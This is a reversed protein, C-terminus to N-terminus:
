PTLESGPAAEWALLTFATYVKGNVSDNRLEFTKTTGAPIEATILAEDAPRIQKGEATAHYSMRYRINRVSLDGTNRLTVRLGHAIQECAVIDIPDQADVDVHNGTQHRPTPDAISSHRQTEEKSKQTPNGFVLRPTTEVQDKAAMSDLPPMEIHPPGSGALDAVRQFIWASSDAGFSVIDSFTSTIAIGILLCAVTLFCLRWSLGYAMLSTLLMGIAQLAFAAVAVYVFPSAPLGVKPTVIFVAQAFLFWFIALKFLPWVLSGAAM